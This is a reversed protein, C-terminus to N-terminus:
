QASGEKSANYAACTPYDDLECEAAKCRKCIGLGGLVVLRALQRNDLEEQTFDEPGYLDHGPHAKSNM